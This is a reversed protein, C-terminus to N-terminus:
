AAKQAPSDTSPPPNTCLDENTQFSSIPLKPDVCNLWFNACSTHYHCGEHTLWDEQLTLLGDTIRPLQTLCIGCCASYLCQASDPVAPLIRCDLASESPLMQLVAPCLSFFAQLNNWALEIDRLRRQLMDSTINVKKMGGEVRKSVRYVELVGAIYMTGQSSHLVESCVSPQSMSCLIDNAKRIVKYINELCKKLQAIDSEM